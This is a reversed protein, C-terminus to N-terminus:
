KNGGEGMYVYSNDNKKLIIGVYYVNGGLKRKEYKKGMEIGFKTQTFRYENSLKTWEVYEKYMDDARELAGPKEFCKNEIFQAVKDMEEKYKDQEKQMVSPLELGEKEYLAFGKVFWGLIQPLEERLKTELTKDMASGKFSQTFPILRNRRWIGDDTGRINIKYNCAIWLKFIPVFEFENGYLYRATTVDGGIMQKVLGENFRAGENPENTRVFRSGNMRAIDNTANGSGNGRTLISEVQTNIGYDGMIASVINLFVSKGNSGTGYCQFFCQENVYGSLTYGVAKHVFSVLDKNDAFVEHLFKIWRKPQPDRLDVECGTNKSLMLDKNHPLLKGTHLDIIGNACNLLNKPKDYDSNVTPTNGVHMAEKLMAEKGSNSALRKINKLLERQYLENPEDMAEEKMEEILIDTMVKVLQKTDREWTKGKFVVWNKNDFNYRINEGFKDIFREANGTDTLDYNKKVKTTGVVGVQPTAVPPKERVSYVEGCSEIAKRLTEQGYTTTGGKQPRNWKDRMLGSQQFIREMQEEDKGTWFALMNCFMLDAESQSPTLNEWMGEYLMQFKSGNRAVAGKELVEMDSLPQPIMKTTSQPKEFMYAGEQPTPPAVVQQQPPTVLYKEHLPKVQVSKDKLELNKYDKANYTKGTLAFFRASDYMEIDGKRRAGQPLNGRCIFHLGEGSQSYEIYVGSGLTDIFDKVLENDTEDMMDIHDLDIGFVGQGLMFGLGNCKYFDCNDFAKDFECWTAPDNSKAGYGTNADIPVKTMRGDKEVLKWLCWRKMAKMEQPIKGYNFKM